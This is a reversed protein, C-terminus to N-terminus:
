IIHRIIRMVKSISIVQLAMIENAQTLGESVFQIASVIHMDIVNYVNM